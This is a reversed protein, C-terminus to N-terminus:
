YRGFRSNALLHNEMIEKRYVEAFVEDSPIRMGSHSFLWRSQNVDAFAGHDLMDAIFPDFTSSAEDGAVEDFGVYGLAPRPPREPRWGNLALKRLHRIYVQALNPSISARHGLPVLLRYQPPRTGNRLCEMCPQWLARAEAIADQELRAWNDAVTQQLSAASSASRQPHAVSGPELTLPLYGAYLKEMAPGFGNDLFSPFTWWKKDYAGHLYGLADDMPDESTAIQWTATALPSVRRVIRSWWDKDSAEEPGLIGDGKSHLVVIRRAAGHAEPFVGLGLPHVDRSAQNTLANDAVAPQWLFLHDVLDRYGISGLLNLATLAVRAGLSHTIINIAIGASHLQQLLPALRRGAAMANLEAQMFDTSGTDGPWSVNIIRSYPMWDKGDFGAARNLRYEMHVAWNHLGNGNLQDDELPTFLSESLADADQWVTAKYPHWVPHRRFSRTNGHYNQSRGEGKLFRGWDGHPVNYGHVFLLANNGNAKFYNLQRATLLDDDPLSEERLNIVMPAPLHIATAKRERAIVDLEVGDELTEGPIFRLKESVTNIGILHEGEPKESWHWRVEGITLREFRAQHAIQDPEPGDLITGSVSKAAMDMVTGADTFALPRGLNDTRQLL